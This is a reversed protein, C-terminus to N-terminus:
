LNETLECMQNGRRTLGCAKYFDVNTDSCDLTVKYCGYCKAEKFLHQLLQKGLGGRRQTAKVCVDEIHATSCTNYILKHEYFITGTAVLAGDQVGVWIAGTRQIYDLTEEFQALSFDTPRFDNLLLKYEEYDGKTLIRFEM